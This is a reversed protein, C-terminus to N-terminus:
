TVFLTLYSSLLCTVIPDPWRLRMLVRSDPLASLLAVEPGRDSRKLLTLGGPLFVKAM